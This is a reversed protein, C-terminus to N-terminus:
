VASGGLGGRLNRIYLIFNSIPGIENIQESSDIFHHMCYISLLHLIRRINRKKKCASGMLSGLAM